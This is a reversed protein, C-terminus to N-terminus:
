CITHYIRCVIDGIYSLGKSPFLFSSIKGCEDVYTEIENLRSAADNVQSELQMRLQKEEALMTELADLRSTMPDMTAADGPRGCLSIWLIVCLVAARVSAPM